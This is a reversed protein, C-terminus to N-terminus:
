HDINTPQTYALKLKISNKNFITRNVSRNIAPHVPYLAVYPLRNTQSKNAFLSQVFLSAFTSLQKNTTSYALTAFLPAQPTANDALVGLYKGDPYIRTYNGYRERDTLMATNAYLNNENMLRLAIADNIPYGTPSEVGDIVLQASNILINSLTDLVKYLNGLDIRTIVASGSQIYRQDGTNAEQYPVLGSLPSGARDTEIHTFSPLNFGNSFFSFGAKLTDAPTHYHLILNTFGQTLDIGLIANSESPVLVLGKMQSIFNKIQDRTKFESSQSIDFLRQGFEDSLRSYAVLTDRSAAVLGLNKKLTDYDVLISLEALSTPDYQLSSNYFYPNASLRSLSDETIEHITFKENTVGGALGYSYFNLRFQATVSDFVANAPLQAGTASYFQLYSEATVTGFVNDQYRGVLSVGDRSIKNDTIVSDVLLTSTELPIEITHIDFKNNPNPFGISTPDECSFFFLAVALLALQGLSKDLLNM